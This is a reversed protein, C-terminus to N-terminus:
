IHILSLFLLDCEVQKNFTDPIDVSCVNDPGPKAWMRCVRCTDCIEPILNLIEDPVGVRELFRRMVQASAHWWRVHLKRLTLRHAGVGGTRFLRVVRGIDFNSWDTPNAPNQGSDRWARKIRPVLDPGRSRASGAPVSPARADPQPAEAGM